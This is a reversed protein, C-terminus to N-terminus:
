AKAKPLFKYSFNARLVNIFNVGPSSSGNDVNAEFTKENVYKEASPRVDTVDNFRSYSGDQGDQGDQDDANDSSLSSTASSYTEYEGDRYVSAAKAPKTEAPNEFYFNKDFPKYAYQADFSRSSRAGFDASSLFPQFKM